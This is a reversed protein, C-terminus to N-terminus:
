GFYRDLQKQAGKAIIVQSTRGSNSESDADIVFGEIHEVLYFQFRNTRITGFFFMVM